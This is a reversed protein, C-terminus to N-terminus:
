ANSGEPEEGENTDENQENKKDKKSENENSTEEKEEKKTEKNKETEEKEKEELQKKVIAEAEAIKILEAQKKVFESKLIFIAAVIYIAAVAVYMVEFYEMNFNIFINIGIYIINLINSLTLAYVAMNFIAVYRMKIKAIWTTFYGFVSLFVANSLTTLFYMIFSYVFITLFVSIYLNVIQSSQAYNIIDQKTFESIKMQNLIENYNYNITGAVSQNKMIVKDKLIIVGSGSEAIDNIYQNIKSEDETKTDVITKGVISDKSDITIIEESHVDLKGDKYSFEPFENQLYSVGDKVLGYTKYVIGLSLIIALIVIIKAVYAIAKGVGKAAMEPYDEIKVISAWVSKFFGKEKKEKVESEKRTDNQESM